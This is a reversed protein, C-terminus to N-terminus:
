HHLICELKRFRITMNSHFHLFIGTIEFDNHAIIPNANRGSIQWAYKFAEELDFRLECATISAHSQSKGYGLSEDLQMAPADPHFTFFAFATSESKEERCLLCLM